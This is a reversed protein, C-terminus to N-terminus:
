GLPPSLRKVRKKEIMGRIRGELGAIAKEWTRDETDLVAQQSLSYLLDKSTSLRRLTEVTKEVYNDLAFIYGNVGNVVVESNAGVDTVIPIVGYKMAEIVTLPLGEYNSPLLLVDAWEYLNALAASDYIPPEIAKFSLAQSSANNIISKGVIRFHMREDDILQNYVSELRLLGKQVDLRGLFVINLKDEDAKKIPRLLPQALFPSAANPVPVLKGVPVGEAHLQTCILESCGAMIDVAHEYAIALDPHGWNIGSPSQDFLHLYAVTIVGNRRIDGLLGFADAGHANIVVDFTSLLNVEAQHAGQLGWKPLNTGMFRPGTWSEFEENDIFFVRDFFRDIADSFIARRSKFVILTTGYGLKKFQEAVAFTVKEVGGFDVIPLIFAIEISKRNIAPPLIAGNAKSRLAKAFNEKSRIGVRDFAKRSFVLECSAARQRLIESRLELVADQIARRMNVLEPDPDYGMLKVIRLSHTSELKNNILNSIRDESPDNVAKRFVVTNFMLINFDSVGISTPKYIKIEGEAAEFNMSVMLSNDLRKELDYLCWEGINSKQLMEWINSSTVILFSGINAEEPAPDYLNFDRIYEDISINKAAMMGSSRVVIGLDFLYITYRPVLINEAKTLWKVDNMWPHKEVLAKVIGSRERDADALMSEPRKRYNFGIEPFNMGHFGLEAASLFFDWDEFGLKLSEDFRLGDKFVRARVLSGAECINEIVLDLPSFKGPYGTLSEMGFMKIDPYYWDIEPFNTLKERMQDITWQSIMNDADLLYYAEAESHKQLYNIGVNRAGSLGRNPGRLYTIQAHNQVAGCGTLMTELNPCGDDVIVIEVNDGGNASLISYIADNLLTSHKFIPIIFAILKRKSSLEVDM